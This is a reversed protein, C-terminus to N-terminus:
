RHRPEDLRRRRPDAPDRIRAGRPRRSIGRLTQESVLRAAEFGFEGADFVGEGMINMGERWIRDIRGCVEAGDHGPATETQCLLTLPLDRWTTSGPALLRGDETPEGEVCLVARWTPGISLAAAASIDRNGIQTTHIKSGAAQGCIACAGDGGGDDLYAHVEMPDVEHEGGPVAAFPAKITPDKYQSAAKRYYASM